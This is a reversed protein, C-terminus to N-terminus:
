LMDKIFFYAKTVAKAVLGLVYGIMYIAEQAGKDIGGAVVCAESTGVATWGQKNLCTEM